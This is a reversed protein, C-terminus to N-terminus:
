ILKGYIREYRDAMLAADLTAAKDVNAARISAVWDPNAVLEEIAAILQDSREPDVLRGNVGDDVFEPIGGVRSAIVPLGFQMADLISSGLAEHLSPFVFLDSAALYDGVNEVFGLLEVNALGEIAKEFRDRDRGEGLLLFHWNAHQESVQRAAEIITLQGKASHDYTGIHSILLKNSYKSRMGDVTAADVGLHANADAISESKIDPYSEGIHEVVADSVGVVKGAGHYARDRLISKQQTRIVRRTIVYPIRFLVSALWAGYVGRAEHAHAIECGRVALMAAVPNSAVSVIELGDVDACRQQLENGKRIVLRQQWGRQSLERILLETQREGGRYDKALNIHCIKV